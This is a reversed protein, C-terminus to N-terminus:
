KDENDFTRIKTDITWTQSRLTSRILNKKSNKRSSCSLKYLVFVIFMRVKLGADRIIPYPTGKNIMHHFHM